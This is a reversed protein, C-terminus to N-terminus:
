IKSKKMFKIEPEDLLPIDVNPHMDEYHNKVNYLWVDCNCLPCKNLYNTCPNRSSAKTVRRAHQVYYPCNSEVLRYFLEKGKKSPKTLKNQCSSRGCFGCPSRSNTEKNLIHKGVHTRMKDLPIMSSCLYCNRLTPDNQNSSSQPANISRNNSTISIGLEDILSKNFKYVAHNNEVIIEPCIAHCCHGSVKVPENKSPNGTWILQSGDEVLDIETVVFIVNENQIDQGSIIKISKGGQKINCISGIYPTGDQIFLIPDGLFLADELNGSKNSEKLNKSLGQVRRLRDKSVRSGIFIQNLITSKHYWVNDVLIQPDAKTGDPGTEELVDILTSGENDDMEQEDSTVSETINNNNDDLSMDAELETLGIKKGFPKLMTIGQTVLDFYDFKALKEPFTFGHIFCETNLRGKDWCGKVNVPGMILKELSWSLPNSYDLSHRAMVKTTNRIWEPHDNMIRMIEKM